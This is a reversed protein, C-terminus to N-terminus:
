DGLTSSVMEDILYVQEDTFKCIPLKSPFITLQEGWLKHNKIIFNKVFKLPNQIMRKDLQNDINLFNISNAIIDVENKFPRKRNKMGFYLTEFLLYLSDFGWPAGKLNFHEWDIIHIGDSGYIVNDLSFDGHIPSEVSPFYPWAYYYHSIIKKIIGANKELGMGYNPKVGNIFKIRIKLYSDQQRLIQCIPYKDQPYRVKQYWNWGAIERRLNNIGAMTTAAKVVYKLSNNEIVLYTAIESGHSCNRILEIM